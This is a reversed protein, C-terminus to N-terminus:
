SGVPVSIGVEVRGGPAGNVNIEVPAPFDALHAAVFADAGGLLLFTIGLAIWDERQDRRAEELGRLDAVREDDALAAELEDPDEIGQAQLRATMVGEWLALRDKALGLRSSSKLLMFVSGSVAAFFFAGRGYAGVEAHGWGPILASRLFAGGPSILGDPAPERAVTDPLEQLEPNARISDPIQGPASAPFLLVAALGAAAWLRGPATRM